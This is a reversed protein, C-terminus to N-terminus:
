GLADRRDLDARAALGVALHARQDGALVAVLDGAVDVAGGALARRDDDVAALPSARAVAEEEARRQMSSTLGPM